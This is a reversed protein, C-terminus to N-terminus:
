HGEMEPVTKVNKQIGKFTLGELSLCILGVVLIPFFNIGHMVFAFTLAPSDPVNFPALALAQQCLWHYTGVYGPSSPVLVGFTTIVLLVLAATWPLAYTSIFDFAHLILQFAYGYCAWIIVSTILVIFYHSPRKLPVFGELFSNFIAKVKEALRPAVPSLLWGILALSKKPYKKLVLLFVFILLVFGLTLYGGTRVWDPFPFVFIAFVLILFLTIVDLIRETVITAFIASSPIPKRKGLIYARAFEGLHAPLFINFMYGILLARFLPAIEVKAIPRLLYQWRVSRLCHALFTILVTPILYWYNAKSFASFMQQVQVKRFALFLFFLSLLLGVVLKWNKLIKKMGIGQSNHPTREADLCQGKEVSAAIESGRNLIQEILSHTGHFIIM